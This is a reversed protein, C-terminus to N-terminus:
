TFLFALSSSRVFPKLVLLAPFFSIVQDAIWQIVASTENLLTGDPFLLSPVNGKPNIEYYDKGTLTKHERLSVQECPLNLHATHAAIFSAAGCSTPTYFLRPLEASKDGM